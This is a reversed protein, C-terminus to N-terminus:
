QARRRAPESNELSSVASVEDADRGQQGGPSLGSIESVADDDPHDFPSRPRQYGYSQSKDGLNALNEETLATSGQQVSNRKVHSLPRNDVVTPQQARQLQVSIASLRQNNTTQPPEQPSSRAAEAPDYRMTPVTNVPPPAPTIRTPSSNAANTEAMDPHSSEFHDDPPQAAQRKRRRWMLFFLGGILALCVVIVPVAIAAVKKSDAGADGGSGAVDMSADTPEEEASHITPALTEITPTAFVETTAGTHISPLPDSTKTSEAVSPLPEGDGDDGSDEPDSGPVSPDVGPNTGPESDFPDDVSDPDQSGGPQHTAQGAGGGETQSPGGSGGNNPRTPDAGDPDVGEDAGSDDTSANTDFSSSVPTPPYGDGDFSSDFSRLRKLLSIPNFGM